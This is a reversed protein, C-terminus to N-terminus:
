ISVFIFFWSLSISDFNFRDSYIASHSLGRDSVGATASQRNRMYVV